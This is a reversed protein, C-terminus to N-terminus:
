SERVMALSKTLRENLQKGLFGVNPADMMDDHTGPIPYVDLAGTVYPTWGMDPGVHAFAPGKDRATFLVVRGEYPVLTYRAAAREYAEIMGIDRLEIPISRGMQEYVKAKMKRIRFQEHAIRQKAYSQGYSLGLKLFSGVHDTLKDAASADPSAPLDPCFTDLLVLLAPANGAACLQHAMEFAVIGGASYGGILHPGEPQVARIAALYAAAMEEITEHPAVSGDVGRAQLGYFPRDADLHRGLDRFNLVNGGAGHVCFFPREGRRGPRIQVLPTWTAGDESCGNSPAAAGNFSEVEGNESAISASGTDENGPKDHDPANSTSPPRETRQGNGATPSPRAPQMPRDDRDTAGSRGQAGTGDGETSPGAVGLRSRIETAFADVTSAEMLLPLPLDLDYEKRIRAFMRVAILSHGGADFFDESRSMRNVGLLDGWLEALFTEVNDRPALYSTEEGATAEDTPEDSGDGTGENPATAAHIRDLWGPLDVTSVLVHPEGAGWARDFAAWGEEPHLGLSVDFALPDDDPVPVPTTEADNASLASAPVRKMQFAEVEAVVTGTDDALVVDFTPQDTETPDVCRMHSVLRRPLPARVRVAGYSMPVYFDSGDYGDVLPLGFGTAMDLLAPHLEYDSREADFVAPLELVALAEGDGTSVTKLCRWEPGFRLTQEQDTRDTPGYRRVTPCRARVARVDIETQTLAADSEVRGTAHETWVASGGDLRSELTYEGGADVTLRVRRARGGTLELPALFYVDRLTVSEAGTAIQAAARACDLTGTGPLVADGAANRHGHLVWFRRPTWTGELVVGGGVQEIRDFLPHGADREAPERGADTGALEAAMGVEQWATWAVSTVPQGELSRKQQAFADLFANAATYDVQGPLGTLASVSSFLVFFDLPQDCLVADLIQTGIVKPALVRATKGDETLAVLADDVVGATHLVGRIPGYRNTVDAVVDEMADRDTVDATRLDVTVGRAELGLVTRIARATRDADPRSALVQAWQGREPLGSRSLLVLTLADEAKWTATLHDAMELGIGGTGGTIVYTGGAALRPPSSPAEMPAPRLTSVWRDAGRYAVVTESPDDAYSPAWLEAALRREQEDRLPTGVPALAVDINRMPLEPHEHPIVRVPGLLLAKEPVTDREMGVRHVGLSLVTTLVPREPAKEALSQALHVLSRFTVAETDQKQALRGRGPASPDDLAWGHVVRRIDEHGVGELLTDIDERVGPRVAFTTDSVQRFTDGATVTVVRPAKPLVQLVVKGRHKTQSMLEFADAADGWPFVHRPLPRLRGAEVHAVVESFLAQFADTREEREVDMDVVTYRITDRNPVDPLTEPTYVDTKGLEVFRGHPRLISLAADVTEGSFAGIVVDVGPGRRQEDTGDTDAWVGDAFATSRSDYVFRIGTERLEDRKVDTGATAVIEAGIMRAIQVAAQGVGGTASQIFVREGPQLGAVRVLGHYATLFGSPLTVAEAFSLGNPRHVVTRADRTVHTRFSDFGAAIVADGVAFKTVNDGVRAVTGACEAGMPVADDAYLGLALLVDKFQLAATHVRIEVEGAAPSRRRAPALALSDVAGVTGQVLRRPPSPVDTSSPDFVELARRALTSARDADDDFVVWTGGSELEEPDIEALSPAATRTWSPVYFWDRPNHARMWSRSAGTEPDTTEADADIWYAEHQFPYRPVSVSRRAEDPYLSSSRLPVGATWLEGLARHLVLVDNTEEEPRRLSPVVPRDAPCSPHRSALTALTNGPGVEVLAADTESFLVAVADAFRVPQRVHRVWYEPDTADADALWTGTLTSVIPIHPSHLRIQEVEARFPALAPEMMASHFAHSTRLVRCPVDDAELTDRLVSVVPDPGGVVVMSPHNLVSVSVGPTGADPGANVAALYPRVETESLGVSLMTGPEMAQMWRGRAAVLRCADALSMVGAVHAAAVEGISHGVLAAPEMGWSQWLRAVAVEVALLAPQTYRTEALRGTAADEDNVDPFLLTRLDRDLGEQLIEACTDITDRFVPEADYLGRGMQVYQAGQGSFMMAVSRASTARGDAAHPAARNRLGAAVEAATRGAVARRYEHKERGELLTHAVDALDGSTAADTDAMGDLHAALNDSAEELAAESKASAVVVHASRRSPVSRLAPGEELVLFANTGGIGLSNVGARRPVGPETEWPRLVDNIFFPTEDIRLKPNPTTFNVTPPLEKHHLALVTKILSSVGAAHDLHGINSKVSGLGCFGRAETGTRFAQTLAAVEIPDGVNTGTGHAEVYSVTDPEVGAIAMAESIAAAQGDVSPAMYGAKQAGDNNVASGRIIAYVTDGDARANPLRKLVVAGAGSGFLTGTAAADFARCHGDRSLIEGDRYLYGHHGRTLITSGGTLAVDCEHNLLAQVGLHVAVLSTSCATQVNVSPGRLDLLYSLRTAFFDKDNSTHRVLFEGVGDMLRRNRLLNYIYYHNPGVGAYVGVARDSSQPPVGAHEFAHYAVELFIRHQPDMIEADRPSFGFFPADFADMGEFDPVAPVFHPDQLLAEDVGAARLEDPSSFRVSEVGSRLNSWFTEVTRAGPFHGAFGVIAIESGTPVDM